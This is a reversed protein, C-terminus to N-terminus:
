GLAFSLVDAPVIQDLLAKQLLLVDQYMEPTWTTYLAQMSGKGDSHALMFNVKQPAINNSLLYTNFFYRLAHFTLLRDNKESKMQISYNSYLMKVLRTRSVPKSFDSDDAFVLEKDGCMDLLAKSLCEPITIFRSDRSKTPALRGFIYQQYVDIYNEHVNEKTLGSVESYRMGTMAVTLAYLFLKRDKWPKSFIYKVEDLRFAERKQQVDLPKVNKSVPNKIVLDDELAWDFIIRLCDVVNNITKNSLESEESLYVRFERIDNTTIRELIYNNFYPLIHFSLYSRYGKLTSTSLQNSLMRSTYWKSGDDFFGVAFDRFRVKSTDLMNRKLLSACFSFADAKKSCGTSKPTTRNGFKDYVYYYYMRKGSPLSRKTLYFPQRQM